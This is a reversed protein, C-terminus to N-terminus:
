DVASLKKINDADSCLTSERVKLEFSTLKRRYERRGSKGEIQLTLASLASEAIEGLDPALSTLPPDMFASQVLDDIGAVAVQGPVDVGNERLVRLTGFALSDNFAFVAEPLARRDASLLRAVAEYGGRPSWDSTALELRPAAGIGWADLEEHFGRLRLVATDSDNVGLAALVRCGQSLLHRVVTRSAAVNDIGVHDGYPTATHEGLLVLPVDPPDEITAQSASLLVGDAVTALAGKMIRKETEADDETAEILVSLGRHAAARIVAQALQAFYPEALQPIVLAVMGTRGSRLGRAVYDMKYELQDLSAQVRERMEPSVYVYNNVVNSVTRVSVGAHEAVDQM